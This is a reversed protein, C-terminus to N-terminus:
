TYRITNRPNRRELGSQTTTLQSIWLHSTLATTDVKMLCHADAHDHIPSKKGPTWVLLLLNFVGPVECVLNRTYQKEPNAHAYKSWHASDSTYTRLLNHLQPLSPHPTTTLTHTLANLLSSFPNQEKRLQPLSQGQTYRSTKYLDIPILVFNFQEFLRMGSSVFSSPLQQSKNFNYSASNSATATIARSTSKVLNSGQSRLQSRLSRSITSKVPAM